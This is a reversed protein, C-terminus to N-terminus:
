FFQLPSITFNDILFNLYWFSTNSKSLTKENKNGSGFQFIEIDRKLSLWVKCCIAWPNNECTQVLRAPCHVCCLQPFTFLFSFILFARSCALSLVISIALLSNPDFCFSRLIYFSSLFIPCSFCCFLKPVSTCMLFIFNVSLMLFM